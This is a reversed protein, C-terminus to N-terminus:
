MDMEGGGYEARDIEDYMLMLMQRQIPEAKCRDNLGRLTHAILEGFAVYVDRAPTTTSSIVSEIAKVSQNLVGLAGPVVDRHPVQDTM